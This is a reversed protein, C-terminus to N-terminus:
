EKATATFYITGSYTGPATDETTGVTATFNQQQNITSTSNVDATYDWITQATSNLAYKNSTADSLYWGEVGQAASTNAAISGGTSTLSGGTATLTFGKTTNSKVTIQVNPSTSALGPTLPSSSSAITFSGASITIASGVYATVQSNKTGTIDAFSSAAPLVSLGIAAVGAAVFLKNIKKM